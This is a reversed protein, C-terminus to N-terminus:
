FGRRTRIGAVHSHPKRLEVANYGRIWPQENYWQWAREKSWQGKVLKEEMFFEGKTPLFRVGKYKETNKIKAM